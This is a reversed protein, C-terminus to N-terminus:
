FEIAPKWAYGSTLVVHRVAQVLREGDRPTEATPGEPEGADRPPAAPPGFASWQVKAKPMWTAAHTEWEVKGDRQRAHVETGRVVLELSQTARLKARFLLTAWPIGHLQWQVTTTEGERTIVYPAEDGGLADIRRHLEEVPVAEVGAPPAVSAALRQRRTIVRRGFTGVLLLGVAAATAEVIM